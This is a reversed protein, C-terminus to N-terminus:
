DRDRVGAANLGSRKRAADRIRSRTEGPLATSMRGVAGSVPSPFSTALLTILSPANFVPVDKLNHWTSRCRETTSMIM